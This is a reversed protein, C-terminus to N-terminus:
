SFFVREATGGLLWHRDDASIGDLRDRILELSGRYTHGPQLQFPSDTAWMLRRPGYADLLRRILPLLDTYPYRKRGLAYFASLKVYSNPYRALACLRAVDQERIQGDAGIRAFHDIVVTTDPFRACLRELRPLADPNILPCIALGEEAACAWMAEMGATELEAGGIRFGRVGREGLARMEAAADPVSADVIAVGRFVGAFRAITDLMYSNDFRYYSMQILVVRTVGCPRAEALLEEPTFRPPKMQEPRVGAAIPYRALDDTWVHVHADIWGQNAATSTWAM